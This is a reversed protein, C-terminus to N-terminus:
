FNGAHLHIRRLEVDIDQILRSAGAARQGQERRVKILQAKTFYVLLTLVGVFVFETSSVGFRAFGGLGSGFMETLRFFFYIAFALLVMALILMCIFPLNWRKRRQAQMFAEYQQARHALLVEESLGTWESMPQYYYISGGATVNANGTVSIFQGGSHHSM